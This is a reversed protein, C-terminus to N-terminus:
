IVVGEWELLFDLVYIKIVMALMEERKMKKIDKPHRLRVELDSKLIKIIEEDFKAGSNSIFFATAEHLSREYIEREIKLEEKRGLFGKLLDSFISKKAKKSKGITYPYESDKPLIAKAILKAKEEAVKEIDIELHLDKIEL